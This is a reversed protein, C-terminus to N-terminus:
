PATLGRLGVPTGWGTPADYGVVGTCLYDGGCTVGGPGPVNSGTVVDRFAGAGNHRWPISGDNILDATGTLAYAAAILPTGASTGGVVLWGEGGYTAYVAVGTGPDAVAAVDNMTRTPCNPDDQWAPKAIYASCGSGTGTWVEETWAGGTGVRLSTGGVATVYASAAPYSVSYGIDGAAVVVAHGPQNYYKEYDKQGAFEVGTGYSNSIVDAGLRAATQVAVGLDDLSNSNAQVVLLRCAPCAASVMDVDLAMELAWGPDPEPLPSSAGDQNVVRLCGSASTCAPLGYMQRYVALDAELNPNSYALIVAVVQDAGGTAPFQYAARLDAPGYGEPLDAAQPTAGVRVKAFCTVFPPSAPRCADRVEASGAAGAVLRLRGAAATAVRVARTVTQDVSNGQPGSARLRFSLYRAGAPPTVTAAFRGAGRPRVTAPRWTVGDDASVDFTARPVAPAAVDQQRVTLDITTATGAPVANDLGVRAGYGVLLLPEASCNRTGDACRLHEPLTGGTRTGSRWTWVTNTRTATTTWEASKVTDLELRVDSEAAPVTVSGNPLSPMGRPEGGIFLRAEAGAQLTDTTALSGVAHGGPDKWPQLGLSLVDGQRCAACPTTAPEGPTTSEAGPSAGPVLPAALYDDTRREGPQYVTLPGQVYGVGEDPRWYVVGVWGVEPLATVYETRGLPVLASTTGRFPMLEWDVISARHLNIQHDAAEAHYAADIRALSSEPVVTTFRDPVVGDSPLHLDYTYPEDRGPPSALHFFTYWHLEGVSVPETPTVFVRPAGGMMLYTTTSRGGSAATRGYTLQVQESDAPRPTRPVPVLADATRADATVVTEPSNVQIEPLVLVADSVYRDDATWTSIDVSLSYTGVPVSFAVEGGAFSRMSGFKLVDDANSVSVGGSRAPEGLADIGKVVLTAQPYAPVVPPAGGDRAPRITRVGALAAADADRGAGTLASGLAAPASIRGTSTGTSTPRLTLGPLPHPTAGPSWTVEVNEPPRSVDFLALDLQRGLYPAASDPVVYTHEGVSMTRVRAPSSGSAPSNGGAPEMSAITRGGDITTLRVREGTILTIVRSAPRTSAAPATAATSADALTAQAVAALGGAAVVVMTVLGGAAATTRRNRM